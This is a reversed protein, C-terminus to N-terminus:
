INFTLDSLDGPSNKSTEKFDTFHLAYYKFSSSLIKEFAISKDSLCCLYSQNGSLHTLGHTELVKLVM